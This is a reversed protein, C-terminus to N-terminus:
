PGHKDSRTFSDARPKLPILEPEQDISASLNVLRPREDAADALVPCQFGSSNRIVNADPDFRYGAPLVFEDSHDGREFNAGERDATWRDPMDALNPHIKYLVVTEHRDDPASDAAMPSKPEPGM